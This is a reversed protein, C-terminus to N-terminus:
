LVHCVTLQVRLSAAVRANPVGTPEDCGLPEVNLYWIGTQLSHWLNCFKCFNMNIAKHDSQIVVLIKNIILSVVWCASAGVSASERKVLVAVHRKDSPCFQCPSGPLTVNLTQM